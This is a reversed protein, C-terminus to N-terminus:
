LAICGSSNVTTDSFKGSTSFFDGSPATYFDCVTATVSDSTATNITVNITILSDCGLSNAFTDTYVGSSTYIAGSPATYSADCTVVTMQSTTATNITLNITIVSDCVPTNQITDLYSGSATDCVTVAAGANATVNNGQGYIQFPLGQAPTNTGGDVLNNWTNGTRQGGNGTVAQM